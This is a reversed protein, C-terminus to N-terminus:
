NGSILCLIQIINFRTLHQLGYFGELGIEVPHKSDITKVYVTMEEIREEYVYYCGVYSRPGNVSWVGDSEKLQVIEHAEDGSPGSYILALVELNPAAWGVVVSMITIVLERRSSIDFSGRRLLEVSEDLGEFRQENMRRRHIGGKKEKGLDEM